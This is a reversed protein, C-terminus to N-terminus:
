DTRGGCSMAVMSVGSGKVIKMTKGKGSSSLTSVVHLTAKESQSIKSLLIEEM